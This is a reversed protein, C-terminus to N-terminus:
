AKIFLVSPSIGGLGWDGIGLGWDGIGMVMVMVMVMGGSFYINVGSLEALSWESLKLAVPPLPQKLM